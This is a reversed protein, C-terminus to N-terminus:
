PGEELSVKDVYFATRLMPDTEVLFSLYVTRGAFDSLDVTEHRWGGVDGDTYRELVALQEGDQDTLRVLLRDSPHNQENTEIRVDYSLKADEGVRIKQRLDDRGNDYDGLYAHGDVILDAGNETEQEWIEKGEMEGNEVGPGDEVQGEPEERADPTEPKESKDAPQPSDGPTHAGPDVVGGFDTTWYWGHVSGPDNIRAIGIVRYKGDLMAHNHSPSRRWAAFAQEATEYGVAINEGKYTNYDYGEDAMRDWPQSGVPYYSSGATNHAFFSYRAMDQDHREASVSLTDSLLLTGLGNQQRYDNILDLFQLEESDYSDADARQDFVTIGAVLAALVAAVVCLYRLFRAGTLREIRELMGPIIVPRATERM